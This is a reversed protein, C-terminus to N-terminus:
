ESKQVEWGCQHPNQHVPCTVLQEKSPKPLPPSDPWGRGPTQGRTAVEKKAPTYSSVRWLNTGSCMPWTSFKVGSSVTYTQVASSEQLQRWAKRRRHRCPLLRSSRQQKLILQFQCWLNQMWSPSLKRRLRQFSKTLSVSPDLELLCQTAGLIRRTVGIMREYESEALMPHSPLM